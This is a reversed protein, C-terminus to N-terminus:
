QKSKMFLLQNQGLIKNVLSVCESLFPVRYGLPFGNYGCLSHLVCLLVLFLLKALCNPFAELAQCNSWRGRNWHGRILHLWQIESPVSDLFHFFNRRSVRTVPVGTWWCSRARLLLSPGPSGPRCLETATAGQVGLRCLGLWKDALTSRLSMSHCLWM